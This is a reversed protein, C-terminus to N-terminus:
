KVTSGIQGKFEEYAAGTNGVATELSASAREQADALPALLATAGTIAGGAAMMGSGFAEKFKGASTAAGDATSALETKVKDLEAHLKGAEARLEVIVPPLLGM